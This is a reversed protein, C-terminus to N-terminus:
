APSPTGESPTAQVPAAEIVPAVAGPTPAARRRSALVHWIAVGTVGAAFLAIFIAGPQPYSHTTFNAIQKTGFLAPTFGPVKVPAAPNLEHGFVYLRYVFRAFAFLCVYLTIVSMDIPSRVTGIVAVRLTLVALAGIAFPLWGLDSLNARDIKQMGIYHNLINIEAIDSGGHGGVVTHPYIDMSLGEPYQPAEMSIRWLPLLFTALLLPVLLALVIRDRTYLPESLLEYFRRVFNKVKM